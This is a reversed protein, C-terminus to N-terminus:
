SRCHGCVDMLVMTTQPSNLGNKFLLSSFLIRSCKHGRSALVFTIYKGREVSGGFAAKLPNPNISM